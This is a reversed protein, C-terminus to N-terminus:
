RRGAQGAVLDTVKRVERHARLDSGSGGPAPRALPARERACGYEAHTGFRGADVGFVQDGVDFETVAPGVAEVRRGARDSCDAVSACRVPGGDSRADPQCEVRRYRATPGTDAGSVAARLTM